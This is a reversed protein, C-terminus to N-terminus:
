QTAPYMWLDNMEFRTNTPDDYQLGGFLWANGSADKWTSPSARAGPVNTAAAKGQTGYVGTADLTSAGGVWTWQGSAPSYEWLDNVRHYFQTTIDLVQGGFVWVNGSADTWSAAGDRASPVNATAAVGQTGYVGAANGTNAGGVWTWKGASPSYKWLDNLLQRQVGTSDYGWGGFLWFNGQADAWSVASIRAGPVNAGDAAGEVGYVGKENSTNPGGIWVWEKSSPVYEWLDNYFAGDSPYSSTPTGEGGFMFM